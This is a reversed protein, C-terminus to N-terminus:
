SMCGPEPFGKQQAIMGFPALNVAGEGNNTVSAGPLLGTDDVSAITLTNDPDNDNALVDITVAEEENTEADDELALHHELQPQPARAADPAIPESM